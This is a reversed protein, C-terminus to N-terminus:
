RSTRPTFSWIFPSLPNLRLVLPHYPVVRFLVQIILFLGSYRTLASLTNLRDYPCASRGILLLHCASSPPASLKELEGPKEGGSSSCHGPSAAGWTPLHPSRSGVVTCLVPLVSWCPATNTWVFGRWTVVPPNVVQLIGELTKLWEGESKRSEAELRAVLVRLSM